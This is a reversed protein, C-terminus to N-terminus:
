YLFSYTQTSNFFLSFKFFLTRTDLFNVQEKQREQLVPVGSKRRALRHGHPGLDQPGPHRLQGGLHAEGPARGPLPRGQAPQTQALLRGGVLQPPPRRAALGRGRCRGGGDAAAAAAAAPPVLQHLPPAHRLVSSPVQGGTSQYVGSPATAPRLLPHTFRARQQQQESPRDSPHIHLIPILAWCDSGAIIVARPSSHTLQM